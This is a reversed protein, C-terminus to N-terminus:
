IGSQRQREQQPREEQLAGKKRYINIGRDKVMEEQVSRERERETWKGQNSETWGNGGDSKQNVRNM